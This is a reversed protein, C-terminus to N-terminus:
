DKWVVDCIRFMQGSELFPPKLIENRWNRCRLEGCIIQYPMITKFFVSNGYENQAIVPNSSKKVVEIFENTSLLDKRITIKKAERMTTDM